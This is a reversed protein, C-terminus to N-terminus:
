KKSNTLAIMKAILDELVTNPKGADFAQTKYVEGNKTVSLSGIAAGDYQHAKSPAELEPITSVDIANVLEQIQAWEKDDLKLIKAKANRDNVWSLMKNNVTINKYSGRSVESYDLLITETQAMKNDTNQAAVLLTKNDKELQLQDGSVKFGNVEALTKLMNQEKTNDKPACMKRTTGLAGFSLTNGEITYDGFFRNCGSFGSVKKNDTDFELTLDSISEGNVTSVIYKGSTLNTTDKEMVTADKTGGCNLLFVTIFLTILKM